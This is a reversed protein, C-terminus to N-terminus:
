GDLGFHWCTRSPHHARTQVMGCLGAEKKSWGAGGGASGDDSGGHPGPLESTLIQPLLGTWGDYIGISLATVLMLALLQPNGCGVRFTETM